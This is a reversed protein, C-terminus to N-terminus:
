KENMWHRGPIIGVARSVATFLGCGCHRHEPVMLLPIGPALRYSLCLVLPPHVTVSVGVLGDDVLRHLSVFILSPKMEYAFRGNM